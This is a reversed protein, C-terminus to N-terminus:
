FQCLEPEFCSLLRSRIVYRQHDKQDVGSKDLQSISEEGVNDEVLQRGAGTETSCLKHDPQRASGSSVIKDVAIDGLALKGSTV